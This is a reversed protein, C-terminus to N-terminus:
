GETASPKKGPIEKVPEVSDTVVLGFKVRLAFYAAVEWTYRVKQKSVRVPMPLEGRKQYKEVLDESLGFLEGFEEVTMYEAAPGRVTRDIWDAM